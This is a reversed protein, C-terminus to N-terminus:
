GKGGHYQCKRAQVVGNVMGTGGILRLVRASNLHVGDNHAVQMRYALQWLLFNSIRQEGSTRIILDPDPIDATDLHQSILREDINGPDVAALANDESSEAKSDTM